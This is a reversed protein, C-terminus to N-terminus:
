ALGSKGTAEMKATLGWGWLAGWQEPYLGSDKSKNWVQWAERSEMKRVFDETAQISGPQPWIACWDGQWNEWKERMGEVWFTMRRGGGAWSERRRRRRKRRRKRKRGPGDGTHYAGKLPCEVTIGVGGVLPLWPLWRWRSQARPKVKAEWPAGAGWIRHPQARRERGSMLHKFTLAEGAQGYSSCLLRKCKAQHIFATWECQQYGCDRLFNLGCPCSLSGM